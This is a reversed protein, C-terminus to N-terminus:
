EITELLDGVEVKKWTEDPRAKGGVPSDKTQTNGGSEQALTDYLRAIFTEFFGITDQSSSLYIDTFKTIAATKSPLLGTFYNFCANTLNYGCFPPLRDGTYSEFQYNGEDVRDHHVVRLAYAFLADKLHSLHRQSRNEKQEAISESLLWGAYVGSCFVAVTDWFGSSSSM